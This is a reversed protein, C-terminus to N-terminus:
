ELGLQKGVQRICESAIANAGYGGPLRVFPKGFRRCVECYDGYGHSAWRILLLVVAVDDRSVASQIFERSGGSKTAVWQLESLEFAKVIADRRAPREDGGILVVRKGALVTRLREVEPSLRARDDPGDDEPEDEEHLGALREGLLMGDARALVSQPLSAAGLAQDVRRLFDTHDLAAGLECAADLACCMKRERDAADEAGETGDAWRQLEYVFKTLADKQKRRRDGLAKAQVRLEKMQALASAPDLALDPENLAQAEAGAIKLRAKAGRVWAGLQNVADDFLGMDTVPTLQRRLRSLHRAVCKVADRSRALEPDDGTYCDIAECVVEYWGRIEALPTITWEIVQQDLAWMFVQEDLGIKRLRNYEDKVSEFEFRKRSMAWDIAACQRKLARRIAPLGADPDVKIVTTKPATTAASGLGGTAGNGSTMAPNGFRAVMTAIAEASARDMTPVAAAVGVPKAEVISFGPAAPSSVAAGSGLPTDTDLATPLAPPDVRMAADAPACINALWGAIAQFMPLTEPRAAILQRVATEIVAVPDSSSSCDGAPAPSVPVSTHSITM